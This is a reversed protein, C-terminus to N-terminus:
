HAKWIAGKRIAGCGVHTAERVESFGAKPGRECYKAQKRVPVGNKHVQSPTLSDMALTDKKDRIGRSSRHGAPVM